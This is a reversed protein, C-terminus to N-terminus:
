SHKTNEVLNSIYSLYENSKLEEQKYKYKMKSILKHIAIITKKLKQKQKLLDNVNNILYEEKQKLLIYESEEKIYEKKLDNTENDNLSIEKRM